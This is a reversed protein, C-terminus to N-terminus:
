KLNCYLIRIHVTPLHKLDNLDKSPSDVLILLSRKGINAMRGPLILESVLSSPTQSGASNSVVKTM